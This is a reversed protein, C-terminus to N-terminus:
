YTRCETGLIGYDNCETTSSHAQERAQEELYCRQVLADTGPFEDKWCRDNDAANSASDQCAALTNLNVGGNMLCLMQAPHDNRWTRAQTAYSVCGSLALASIGVLAYKLNM